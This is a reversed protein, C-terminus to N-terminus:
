TNSEKKRNRSRAGDTVAGLYILESRPLDAGDRSGPRQARDMRPTRCRRLHAATSSAPGRARARRRGGLDAASERALTRCEVAMVPAHTPMGAFAFEHTRHDAFQLNPIVNIGAEQWYRAVWRSRYLNWLQVCLPDDRWMSFDPAVVAALGAAHLTSVTRVAQAWVSEFRWDPVYFCLIAGRLRSTAASRFPVLLGAPDGEGTWTGTPVVDALRDSRLDPLGWPNSSPFRADERFAYVPVPEIPEMPPVPLAETSCMEMLAQM